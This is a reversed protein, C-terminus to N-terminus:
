RIISADMELKAFNIRQREMPAEWDFVEEWNGTGRREQRDPYKEMERECNICFPTYPLANLRAAPIRVQCKESDGECVGYKGRLLCALAREIQSLERADMEALQSSMEDSSTEFAVDASDCASDAARFDRLNALDGALKQRRDAGRALLTEHMRLLAARKAMTQRRLDDNMMRKAM